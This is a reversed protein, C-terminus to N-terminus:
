KGKLALALAKGIAEHFAQASETAGTVVDVENSQQYVIENALKDILTCPYRTDCESIDAAVILGSAIQVTAQIDGHPCSGWASFTGDKYPSPPEAPAAAPASSAAQDPAASANGATTSDAKHHSAPQPPNKAANLAPDAPSAPAGSSLSSPERAGPENPALPGSAPQSAPRAGLRAAATPLNGTAVAVAMRQASQAAFRHAAADTRFYGAGYVAIIAASSMAVLNNSLKDGSPKPEAPSSRYQRKSKAAQAWVFIGAMGLIVGLGVFMSWESDGFGASVGLLPVMALSFLGAPGIESFRM